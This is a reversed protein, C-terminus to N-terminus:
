ESDPNKQTMRESTKSMVQSVPTGAKIAAVLQAERAALKEAQELVTNLNESSLFVV